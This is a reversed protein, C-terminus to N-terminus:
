NTFILVVSGFPSLRDKVPEEATILMAAVYIGLLGHLTPESGEAGGEADVGGSLPVSVVKWLNNDAVCQKLSFRQGCDEWTHQRLLMDRHSSWRRPAEALGYLAKLVLWKESEEVLGLRVLVKPPSVVVVKVKNGQVSKLKRVLMEFDLSGSSLDGPSLVAQGHRDQYLPAGLFATKIDLGANGWGKIAAVGVQLRM